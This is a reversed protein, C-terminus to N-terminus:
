KRRTIIKIMFSRSTVKTIQVHQSYPVSSLSVMGRPQQQIKVFRLPLSGMRNVHSKVKRPKSVVKPKFVPKEIKNVSKESKLTIKIKNVKKPTEVLSSVEKTIHVKLISERKMVIDLKDEGKNNMKAVLRRERPAELKVVFSDILTYMVRVLDHIQKRQYLSLIPLNLVDWLLVKLPAYGKFMDRCIQILGNINQRLIKERKIKMDDVYNGSLFLEIDDENKINEVEDHVLQVSSKIDDNLTDLSGEMVSINVCESLVDIVSERIYVDKHFCLIETFLVLADKNKLGGELLMIKLAMLFENQFSERNRDTCGAEVSFKDMIMETLESFEYVGKKHLKYKALMISTKIFSEYSSLWNVLNEYRFLQAKVKDVYAIDKVDNLAVNVVNEILGCVYVHDSFKNEGNENYVLIDLLFDKVLNPCKGNEDKAKALVKPITCQLFYLATNEFDNSKPINSGDLCFLIQFIKILHKIGGIFKPDYVNKSLAECAALRIGFYYREDMATRFLVSSYVLSKADGNDVVDEYYRIAELQAEIDGDQRLQSSFMYDPQNIHMKCIWEFDSDIRIWEFAENQKLLENSESTHHFETLHFRSCEEPSMYVNGLCNVDIVTPKEENNNEVANEDNAGGGRKRLRRYKTNYQIDIKTFTDKIEVIHEYPTGDHEHIRITMSGTFCETRNVNPHELRNLASRCFGQGGVVKGHGLEEDQVQRIGLEIVMRKRNFRQTVRLIPVGSGYVWQSFFSELKSKNVRECVHQFHSSTLSNNPLDGSIAQLFVKPLVRSMGFSRETKTMRKDLIHLVMPAKLQIFSLDQSTCSIPRSSGSFTSGIPPKEFDEEVIAESYRKLIYKYANNGMLKKIVQFVMYGAIGLCCWYDNMNLPTINVCSWQNALAWALDNTSSFVKDIVELPYLLRTNCVGLGAFDMHNCLVTPLFVLSYSTFPYSGFEKSYFDIIKQCVVTSNIVTAEDIETTPLTFVQIPIIDSGISDDIINNINDNVNDRLKDEEAEDEVDISSPSILPLSWSNFAGIAWGVHHPAVPNIIQFVCKKKTLDIPHPLEKINSYESCCVVVDRLNPNNNEEINRREEEEDSEGDEDEEDDGDDDKKNTKKIEESDRLNVDNDKESKIPLAQEAEVSDEELTDQGEENDMEGNQGILKSTGINKVLKPVSFELEWTSKEDLLDVCPVWYSASSCMEGNSTYVNWLWPKESNVTDFRVGSKPNRIEYEIQLTIPTFVSEQLGPTTKISPTIPTYSSLSNADELSIKISSPIKITLQSKSDSEPYENLGAFKSRLFHSQEISNDTYLVDRSTPGELKTQLPDDHIFQDCRRNEVLVDKITMEKCDFTVYELNKILPIIIITASGTICHTALDIDLSIKEHAVRFNRFKMEHLTSSENVIARPTANKSFSM